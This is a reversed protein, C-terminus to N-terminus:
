YFVDGNATKHKQKLAVTYMSLYEYQCVRDRCAARGIETDHVTRVLCSLQPRRRAHSDWLSRLAGQVKDLGRGSCHWASRGFVGAGLQQHAANTCPATRSLFTYYLRLDSSCVDSSWDSIRM